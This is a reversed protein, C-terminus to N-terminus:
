HTIFSHSILLKAAEKADDASSPTNMVM